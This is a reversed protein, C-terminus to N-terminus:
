NRKEIKNSWTWFLKKIKNVHNISFQFYKNSFSEQLTAVGVKTFLEIFLADSINLHMKLLLAEKFFKRLIGGKGRSIPKLGEYMLMFIVTLSDLISLFENNVKDIETTAVFVKYGPLSMISHQLGNIASLIQTSDCALEICTQRKEKEIITLYFLEYFNTGNNFYLILNRGFIDELGYKHRFPKINSNTIIKLNFNTIESLIDKDEKFFHIELCKSNLNLIKTLNVMSEIISKLDYNFYLNGISLFYSSYNGFESNETRYKIGQTGLAPQILFFHERNKINESDLILNKMVSTTSNTFNITSDQHHVLGVGEVEIAGNRIFFDRIKLIIEKNFLDNKHQMGFERTIIKVTLIKLM